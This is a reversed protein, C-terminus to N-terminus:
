HTRQAKNSGNEEERHPSVLHSEYSTETGRFIAEDADEPFPRSYIWANCGLTTYGQGVAGLRCRPVQRARLIVQVDFDFEVGVFLRVMHCLAVFADGSPTFRRFQDYDLPGVRIRFRSQRDWVRRGLLTSNGLQNHCEDSSGRQPLRTQNERSLHLWQGQFQQIQIPVGLYSALTREISLANPRLNSFDGSYFLFAQDNLRLRDRLKETGLGILCFLSQTFADNQTGKRHAREYGIYFRYKEWVRYFLSIIRHNFLDFFDRIGHDRDRNRQILLRTYHDPLVGQPGTLGLFAVKMEPSTLAHDSDRRRAPQISGIPSQPFSHSALARFRVTEQDPQGGLGVPRRIDSESDAAKEEAMRELLRVAQFFDFRHPEEFLQRILSSDERRNSPGM